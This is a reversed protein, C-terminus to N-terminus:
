LDYKQQYGEKLYEEKKEGHWLQSIQAGTADKRVICTTLERPCHWAM